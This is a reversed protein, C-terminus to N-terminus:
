GRLKEMQSLHCLYPDMEMVLHLDVLKDIQLVYNNKMSHVKCAINYFDNIYLNM